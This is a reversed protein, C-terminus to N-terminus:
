REGEKEQAWINKLNLSRRALTEINWLGQKALIAGNEASLYQSFRSFDYRNYVMVNGDKIMELGIDKDDLSLYALLRNRGDIKFQDFLIEVDQDLLNSKLYNFAIKAISEKGL